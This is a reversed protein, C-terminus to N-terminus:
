LLPVTSKTTEIKHSLLQLNLFAHCLLHHSTIGTDVKCFIKISYQYMYKCLLIQLFHWFKINTPLTVRFCWVNECYNGIISWINRNLVDHKEEKYLSSKSYFIFYSLVNCGKKFDKKLRIQGMNHVKRAFFWLFIASFFWGM